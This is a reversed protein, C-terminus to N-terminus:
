PLPLREAEDPGCRLSFLSEVRRLFTSRTDTDYKGTVIELAGKLSGLLAADEMVQVLDRPSLAYGRWTQQRTETALRVLGRRQHPPVLDLAARSCGENLLLEEEVASPYGIPILRVRSVLDENLQYVGGYDATNLSGVVWLEADKKLRYIVGAEPIEITRRFDTLPNLLKQTQPTLAGVEELNLICRGTENAIDIATPLPGLVFPTEDGRLTYAGFMQQRRLDESCDVTVMPATIRAAYHHWLLSKGVGKPGVLLITGHFALKHITDVLKHTDRYYPQTTPLFSDSPLREFRVPKTM